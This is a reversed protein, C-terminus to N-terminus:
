PFYLIDTNHAYDIKNLGRTTSANKKLLIEEKQNKRENQNKSGWKLM